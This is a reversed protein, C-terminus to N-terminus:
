HPVGPKKCASDQFPGQVRVWGEGPTFQACIDNDSQASRWKYWPAPGALAAACCFVLLVSLWVQKM